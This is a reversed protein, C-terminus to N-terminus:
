QLFAMPDTSEVGRRVEFHLFAPDGARVKGIQQGRTVADGRAVTIADVGAYVTLLGGEHRIVVIPVANTDQTIAAISGAAAARVPSGAPAGIDIGENRGPAYGRIISGDAPMAMQAASAATRSEGLDPSDPANEPTAGAPQPDEDPLPESASPPLPTPSPQGSAPPAVAAAAAAPAAVAAATPIMLRQGERVAMDTGLGNWDALAQASVNYTRAISFATEGRAVTHQRPEPGAPAPAPAPAPAAAPAAPAPAVRDLATTAVATVDINGSGGIVRPGGAVAVPAPEAVRSPLALVEGDRLPADPPLANYRALAGADTGVRQAVTAVTDGARAVAVQYGPYSIVGRADPAPRNATAQLAADSTDLANGGRLDWDLPGLPGDACGALALLATGILATRLHTM